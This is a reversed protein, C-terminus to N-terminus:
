APCEWAVAPSEPLTKFEADPGDSKEGDVNEGMLRYHYLMNPELGEPRGSVPVPSTGDGDDNSETGDRM